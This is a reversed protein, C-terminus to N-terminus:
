RWWLGAQDQEFVKRTIQDTNLVDVESQALAADLPAVGRVAYGMDLVQEETRGQCGQRVENDAEDSAGRAAEAVGNQGAQAEQISQLGQITLTKRLITCNHM